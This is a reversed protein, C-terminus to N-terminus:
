LSAIIGTVALVGVALGFFMYNEKKKKSREERIKALLHNINVKTNNSNNITKETLEEGSM